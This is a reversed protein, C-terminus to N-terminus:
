AAKETARPREWVECGEGKFDEVHMVFGKHRLIAEMHAFPTPLWAEPCGGMMYTGGRIEHKFDFVIREKSVPDLLEVDYSM